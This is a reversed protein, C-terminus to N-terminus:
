RWCDRRKRSRRCSCCCAASISRKRPWGKRRPDAGAVEDWGSGYAAYIAELVADLRPPLERAEPLEFAIDADHIKTKARSLRQGM